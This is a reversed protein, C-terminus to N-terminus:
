WSGDDHRTIHVPLIDKEEEEELLLFREKRGMFRMLIDLTKEKMEKARGTRLLM